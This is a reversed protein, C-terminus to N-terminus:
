YHSSDGGKARKSHMKSLIHIASSALELYEGKCQICMLLSQMNERM